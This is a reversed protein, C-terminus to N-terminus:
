ISGGVKRTDCVDPRKWLMWLHRGPEMRDVEKWPSKWWREHVYISTFLFYVCIFKSGHFSGDVEMSTPLPGAEM